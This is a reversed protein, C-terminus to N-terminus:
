IRLALVIANANGSASENAKENEDQNECDAALDDDGDDDAQDNEAEEEADDDDDDDLVDDCIPARPLVHQTRAVENGHWALAAAGLSVGLVLPAAIAVILDRRMSGRLRGAVTQYRDEHTDM